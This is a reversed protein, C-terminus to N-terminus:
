AVAGSPQGMLEIFADEIGPAISVVRADAFGAQLLYARLESELV